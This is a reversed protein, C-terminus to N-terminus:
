DNEYNRINSLKKTDSVLLTIPTSIKMNINPAKIYINIDNKNNMLEESLFHPMIKISMTDGEVTYQIYKKLEKDAHIQIDYTDSEIFYINSPINIYIKSFAEVKPQIYTNDNNDINNNAFVSAMSITLFLILTFIIKKM